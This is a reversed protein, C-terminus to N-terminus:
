RPYGNREARETLWADVEAPRFRRARGVTVSPLGENMLKYLFSRSFRYRTTVEDVTEWREPDPPNSPTPEPARHPTSM